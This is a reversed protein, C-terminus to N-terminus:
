LGEIGHRGFGGGEGGDELLAEAEGREARELLLDDAVGEGPAVHDGEQGRAAALAEAELEGGDDAGAERDDDGREDRQHLVLHVREVRRADGGRVEVRGEVRGLGRGAHAAEALPPVLQEVDRRLPEHRPAEERGEARKSTRATATSSAWQMLAHPCSKRGSYRRSLSRRSTRGSAGIMASEAVAVSRTRSSM